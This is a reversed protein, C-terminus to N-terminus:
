AKKWYFEFRDVFQILESNEDFFDMLRICMLKSCKATLNGGPTYSLFPDNTSKETGKTDKFTIHVVRLHPLLSCDSLVLGHETAFSEIKEKLISFSDVTEQGSSVEQMVGQNPLESQREAGEMGYVDSLTLAVCFCCLGFLQLIERM